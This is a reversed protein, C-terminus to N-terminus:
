RRTRVSIRPTGANFRPPGCRDARKQQLIEEHIVEVIRYLLDGGGCGRFREFCDADLHKAATSRQGERHSAEALEIRLLPPV